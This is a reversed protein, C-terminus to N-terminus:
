RAMILSSSVPSSSSSSPSTSLEKSNSPPYRQRSSAARHDQQSSSPPEPSSPSSPSADSMHKKTTTTVVPTDDDHEDPESGDVHDLPHIRPTAKIETETTITSGEPTHASSSSTSPSDDALLTPTSSGSVSSSQLLAKALGTTEEEEAVLGGSTTYINSEKRQIREYFLMFVGGQELMEEESVMSVDDDSLRWWQRESSAKEQENENGEDQRPNDTTPLQEDNDEHQKQGPWSRYCIYHGNEHRGYHTIVARIEYLSGVGERQPNRADEVGEEEPEDGGDDDNFRLCWPTLDLIKPFQVDANNKMEHGSFDDFVSRNIHLILSEPSRAVVAQRTKTTSVRNRPGIKCTDRLTKESFDENEIASQVNQLRSLLLANGNKPPSTSETQLADESPRQMIQELQRQYALLTCRACEVGEIHDVKTYEDLCAELDYSWGRGLTLTLCIFPNMSLGESWGCQLCRVSQALLGELPNNTHRPVSATTRQSSSRSPLPRDHQDQCREKKESRDDEEIIGAVLELGPNSSRRQRGIAQSIERDLEEVVKSFYEQADQQQWSSMSKLATPTWLVRGGNRPDNLDEIIRRLAKITSLSEEDPKSIEPNIFEDLYTSISPLSALGQIVSNQYCSNDWNGLGPPHGARANRKPTSTSPGVSSGKLRSVLSTTELGFARKIADGGAAVTGLRDREPGHNLARNFSPYSHGVLSGLRTSVMDVTHRLLAAVKAASRAHLYKTIQYILIATISLYALLTLTSRWINLHANGAAFPSRSSSFPNHLYSRSGDATM